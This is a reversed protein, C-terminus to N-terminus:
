ILTQKKFDGMPMVGRKMHYGCTDVFERSHSGIKLCYFGQFELTLYLLMYLLIWYGSIYLIYIPFVIETGKCIINIYTFTYINFFTSVRAVM